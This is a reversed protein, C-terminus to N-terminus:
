KESEKKFKPNLSYWNNQNRRLTGEKYLKNVIKDIERTDHPFFSRYLEYKKAYKVTRFYSIVNEETLEFHTLDRVKDVLDRITDKYEDLQIKLERVQVDLKQNKTMVNEPTDKPKEPCNTIHRSGSITRNM